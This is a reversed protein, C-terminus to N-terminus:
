LQNLDDKCGNFMLTEEVIDQIEEVTIEDKQSETISNVVDEIINVASCDEGSAEVARLIASSIKDEDFDVRRGDRKIVKVM